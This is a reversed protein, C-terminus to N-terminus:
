PWKGGCFGCFKHLECVLNEYQRLILTRFAHCVRFIISGWGAVNVRCQGSCKIYIKQM